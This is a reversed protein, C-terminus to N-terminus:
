FNRKYDDGTRRKSFLRKAQGSKTIPRPYGFSSKELESFLNKFNKSFNPNFFTDKKLKKPDHKPLVSKQTERAM